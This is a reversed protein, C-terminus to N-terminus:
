AGHRRVLAAFAAEDRGASFRRLLEADPEESLRRDEVVGRILRLLPTATARTMPDARPPRIPEDRLLEEPRAAHSSKEGPPCNIPRTIQTGHGRSQTPMDVLM